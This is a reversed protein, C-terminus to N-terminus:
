QEGTRRLQASYLSTTCQEDPINRYQTLGKRAFFASRSITKTMPCTLGAGVHETVDHLFWANAPLWDAVTYHNRWRYDIQGDKYRIHQLIAPFQAYSRSLALAISKSWIPLVIWMGFITCRALTLRSGPGEGLPGFVYTADVAILDSWLAIRRPLPLPNATAFAAAWQAATFAAPNEAAAAFAPAGCRGSRPM